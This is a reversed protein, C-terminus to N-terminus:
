DRVRRGSSRADTFLRRRGAPFSPADGGSGMEWRGDGMDWRGDGMEWIGYGMDWEGDGM